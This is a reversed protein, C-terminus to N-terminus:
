TASFPKKEGSPGPSPNVQSTLAQVGSMKENEMKTATKKETLSAVVHSNVVKEVTGDEYLRYVWTEHAFEVQMIDAPLVYQEVPQIDALDASVPRVFCCVIFLFIGMYTRMMWAVEDLPKESKEAPRVIGQRLLPLALLPSTDFKSYKRSM